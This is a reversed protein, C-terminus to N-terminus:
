TPWLQICRPKVYLSPSSVDDQGYNLSSWRKEREEYVYPEGYVQFFQNLQIQFSRFKVDTWKRLLDFITELM